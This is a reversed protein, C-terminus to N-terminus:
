VRNETPATTDNAAETIFTAKEQKESTEPENTNSVESPQPNSEAEKQQENNKIDQETPQQQGQDSHDQVEVNPEGANESM